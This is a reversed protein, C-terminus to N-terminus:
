QQPYLKSLIWGLKQLNQGKVPPLTNLFVRELLRFVNKCGPTYAINFIYFTCFLACVAEDPKVEVLVSGKEISIFAQTENYLITPQPVCEKVQDEM